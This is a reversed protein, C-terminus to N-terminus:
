REAASAARLQQRECASELQHLVARCYRAEEAAARFEGATLREDLRKIADLLVVRRENPDLNVEADRGAAAQLM